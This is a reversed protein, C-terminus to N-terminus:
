TNDWRMNLNQVVNEGSKISKEKLSFHETEIIQMTQRIEDEKTDTVQM